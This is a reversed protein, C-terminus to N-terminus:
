GFNDRWHLAIHVTPRKQHGARTLQATSCTRLGVVGVVTGQCILLAACRNPGLDAIPFVNYADNKHGAKLAEVNVQILLRASPEHCQIPM